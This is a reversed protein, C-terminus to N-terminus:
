LILVVHEEEGSAQDGSQRSGLQESAGAAGKFGRMQAEAPAGGIATAALPGRAGHAGERVGAM